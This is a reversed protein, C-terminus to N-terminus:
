ATVRPCQQNPRSEGDLHLSRCATFVGFETELFFILVPTRIANNMSKLVFIHVSQRAHALCQSGHYDFCIFNRGEHLKYELLYHPRRNYVTPLIFLFFIYCTLRHYVGLPFISCLLLAPPPPAAIKLPKDCAARLLSMITFFHFFHPVSGNLHRPSSLGPPPFVM